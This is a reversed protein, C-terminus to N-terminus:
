PWKIRNRKPNNQIFTYLNCLFRNIKKNNLDCINKGIYIYIGIADAILFFLLFHYESLSIPYIIINIFSYNVSCVM